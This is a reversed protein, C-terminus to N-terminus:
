RYRRTDSTEGKEEPSFLVDQDRSAGVHMRVFGADATPNALTYDKQAM